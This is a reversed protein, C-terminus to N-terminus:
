YDPAIRQRRGRMVIWCPHYCLKRFEVSVKKIGCRTFGDAEILHQMTKNDAHTDIRINQAIAKCYGATCRFLGHVQGDGALRHITLYPANNLWNGGEICAYTPEAGAFLAFVGHIGTEDFIVKCTHQRIDSAILAAEPYFHGWQTPNGSQIMYDQAHAYIGMIQAIDRPAADRIHLIFGGELVNSQQIELDIYCIEASTALTTFATKGSFIDYIDIDPAAFKGGRYSSGFILRNDTGRIHRFHPRLIGKRQAM